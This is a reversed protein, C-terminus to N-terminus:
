VGGASPEVLGSAIRLVTSKGCGSPGVLSVFEGEGVRLSVAAMAETGDEFTKSVEDFVLRPSSAAAPAEIPREAIGPESDMVGGLKACLRDGSCAVSGGWLVAGHM